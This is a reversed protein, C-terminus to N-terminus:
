QSSRLLRGDTDFQFTFENYDAREYAFQQTTPSAAFLPSFTTVKVTRDDPLFELIRLWGDGGNGNWGTIAQTDFLMQHVTRGAANKDTRYGVSQTFKLGSIHGSLVLEINKSPKVLKEWVQEGWNPNPLKYGEKDTRLNDREMNNLYSHTLLIVTHSAYKDKNIVTKAWELTEDRPAFELVVVLYKRGGPSVFEFAANALTPVGEANTGTERLLRQNLRNKDIPFYEDFHTRRNEASFIGFDHNGTALIYPTVGDLRGFARSVAEWQAKGTQNGNISDPVLRHNQEVLDGTCLTLGINLPKANRAIWATMLEFLPQNYDFKVYSQPDPILIMSWSAPDSLAPAKYEQANVFSSFLLAFVIFKKM